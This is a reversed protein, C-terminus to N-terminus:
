ISDLVANTLRVYDLVAHDLTPRMATSCSTTQAAAAEDGPAYVAARGNIAARRRRQICLLDVLCSHLAAVIGDVNPVLTPPPHRRSPLQTTPPLSPAPPPHCRPPRRHTAALPGATPPLSLAPRTSPVYPHVVPCPDAPAVDIRLQVRM